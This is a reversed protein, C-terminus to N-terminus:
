KVILVDKLQHDKGINKYDMHKILCHYWFSFISASWKTTEPFFLIITCGKFLMCLGSFIIHSELQPGKAQFVLGGVSLSGRKNPRWARKGGSM